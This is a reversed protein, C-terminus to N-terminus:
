EGAGRHIRHYGGEGPRRGGRGSPSPVRRLTEDLDKEWGFRLCFIRVRELGEVNLFKVGPGIPYRRESLQEFNAM